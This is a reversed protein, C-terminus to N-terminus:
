LYSSSFIIDKKVSRGNRTVVGGIDRFLDIGEFQIFM